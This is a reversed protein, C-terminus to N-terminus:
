PGLEAHAEKEQVKTRGQDLGPFPDRDMGPRSGELLAQAPARPKLAVRDRLVVSETPSVRRHVAEVPLALERERVGDGDEQPPAESQAVSQVKRHLAKPAPESATAPAPSAAQTKAGAPRDRCNDPSCASSSVCSSAASRKSGPCRYRVRSLNASVGGRACRSCSPFVTAYSQM